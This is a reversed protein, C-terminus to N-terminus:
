KSVDIDWHNHLTRFYFKLHLKKVYMCWKAQSIDETLIRAKFIIARGNAQPEDYVTSLAYRCKWWRLTMLQIAGTSFRKSIKRVSILVHIPARSLDLAVMLHTGPINRGPEAQIKALIGWWAASVGCVNWIVEKGLARSLLPLWDNRWVTTSIFFVFVTPPISQYNRYLAARAYNGCNHQLVRVFVTLPNIAIM